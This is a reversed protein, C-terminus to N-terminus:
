PALRARIQELVAAHEPRATLAEVLKQPTAYMPDQAIAQRLANEADTSRGSKELTIAAGAWADAKKGESINLAQQFAQLAPEYDGRDMLAYGLNNAATDSFPSKKLTDQWLSLSDAFVAQRQWTLTALFLIVLGCAVALVRFVSPRALALAGALSLALGALPLYMFRDAIPRFIPIFNSVPALGLWFLFGGIAGTRSKCALWGQLAVFVTLVALAPALTIGRVNQPVYDASLHLPWFILGLLFTWIRPQIQFVMGFSGGIYGPPHLFIQSDKPELAFRAFFFGATLAFVAGLLGLWPAWPERRRYLLWYLGLLPLAAFGTEKSACALFAALTCGAGWYIRARGESRGFAEALLLAALVFITALM